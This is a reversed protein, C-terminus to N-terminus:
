GYLLWQNKGYDVTIGAGLERGGHAYGPRRAAEDVV